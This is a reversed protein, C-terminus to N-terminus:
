RKIVRMTKVSTGQALIINYVGSPYREGFQENEIADVAFERNEVLKGIMDYVKIQVKEESSTTMDFAFSENYPNPYVVARFDAIPNTSEEGKEITRSAGPGTIMCNESFPSWYGATQVSVRVAYTAGPTFNPVQAFTFWNQTRDLNSQAFTSMNTIEFRYATARNLSTTSVYTGSTAVTGGCNTLMPIAPSSVNCPAGYGSWAGNSTKIAVEVQYQTGYNFRTLMTLAFWNIPRELVQQVYDGGETLNTVRFRYQTVNPMSTTAILTSIAPLVIGCQSPSVAVAGGQALVAPTSVLCATGYYNLWSGNRRLMVRVSYTSAYDYVPLMTLAFNPVNRDITQVANTAVNTVEFRYGNVPASFSVAGVLSNISALTTGCQNALVQSYIQSGEDITGDCDDDIGNYPVEAAGPHVAALADNCDTNDLVYGPTPECLTTSVEPNGFGDADADAYYTYCDNSFYINDLYIQTPSTANQEFKLGYISGLNAGPFNTLPIRITNWGAHLNTADFQHDGNSLLYIFMHSSALSGGLPANLYVDVNLHSMGEVSFFTENQDVLGLFGFNDLRLATNTGNAIETMTTAGTWASRVATIANAYVSPTGTYMSVVRDATRAAPIPSATPAPYAVNLTATISATGYSGSAAQTATITSTGPAVIHVTNGSITAVNTNSSTYTFAGNSNSTPATLTFDPDGFNKAPITFDALTPPLATAPRYFYINDVFVTKGGGNLSELKLLSVGNLNLGANLYTSMPINISNWQNPLLTFQANRDGNNLLWINMGTCDESYVDLHLMTMNTLNTPAFTVIEILFNSMKKTDNGQLQEDTTSAQNQWVPASSTAYANSYLSIVDWENRAPPTPAPTTLPPVTVTLTATASASSYIGNAAQTATITSTGAGVITVTNGSITAVSTNSSTYTFAGASNSTPATLAFPADGLVHAAVTFTGLTPPTATDKYFYFNDIAFIQNTVVANGIKFEAYKIERIQTLDLGPFTTGNVDLNVSTWQGPTLPITVSTEFTGGTTKILFLQMSTMSPSYIDVHLKNIVSVNIDQGIRTGQYAASNQYQKVADGGYSPTTMNAPHNGAQGWNPNFDTGAIDAYAGAFISIVDNANRAPQTPAAPPPPVNVVFTASATGSGFGGAAAQTATITSNGAGTITVMNGSITAVNTNSSTYTFAGTSNSTPPTLAFAADGLNKAPVSFTGLTPPNSTAPRYFYVNTIYLTTNNPNFTVPVIYKLNALDVGAYNSLPINYSNWTGQAKNGPVELEVASGNAAELKIKFSAFDPSWVDIHLHTMASVNLNQAGNTSIGSYSHNTYKKVISNDALTVDGVITSGGFDFFGVGAQNTYASGYQSLVDWPNRAPPTAPGATPTTAAVTVVLSANATASSYSSTAAQTATITSTGGGVVTVMNGSITAVATNSSTYTFAGASNSTPATLAFPADGLQKAPVTFTGLTPAPLGGSCANGVTYTFQKTIAFGGAAWAFKASVKFTAGNAQGTFTRRFVQSGGVQQMQTEVFNPNETHAYAVLGTLPSLVEFEVIVDTGSTTFLYRYEPLGGGQALETSTGACQTNQAFGTINAAVLLLLFMLNKITKM